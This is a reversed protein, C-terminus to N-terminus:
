STLSRPPHRLRTNEGEVRTMYTKSVLHSLDNIFMSYVVYGDTVYWFSQWGRVIKWLQKSEASRDGLVWAIIGSVGHNVASRAGFRIKKAGVFTQLEDLETVEPIEDSEPADPLAKGAQRVWNIITNHNIGTVREIGRFGMGNLYMKLRLQKVDDSYGKPSYSEVFQRGCHLCIYNQNGHHRGNKSIQTSECKPCKMSINHLAWQTPNYEM